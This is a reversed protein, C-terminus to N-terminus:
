IQPRVRRQNRRFGCSIATDGEGLRISPGCTENYIQNIEFLPSSATNLRTISACLPVLRHLRRSQSRIPPKAPRCESVDDVAGNAAAPVSDSGALTRPNPLALDTMTTNAVNTLYGYLVMTAEVNRPTPLVITMTTTATITTSLAFELAGWPINRNAVM